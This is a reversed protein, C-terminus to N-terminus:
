QLEMQFPESSAIEQNKLYGEVTNILMELKTMVQHYTDSECMRDCYRLHSLKADSLATQLNKKYHTAM